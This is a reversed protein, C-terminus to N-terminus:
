YELWGTASNTYVANFPDIFTSHIRELLEGTVGEFRGTGDYFAYRAWEGDADMGYEVLRFYLEDGNAAIMTGTAENYSVRDTCWILSVEFKGLHSAQGEGNITLQALGPCDPTNVSIAFVGEGSLKFPRRVVKAETTTVEAKLTASEMLPDLEDPSCGLFLSGLFVLILAASRM